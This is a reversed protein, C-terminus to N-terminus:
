TRGLSTGSCSTVTSPLYCLVLFVAQKYTNRDDSMLLYCSCLRSYLDAARRNCLSLSYCSYSSLDHRRCECAYYALYDSSGPLSNVSGPRCDGSVASMGLDYYSHCIMYCKVVVGIGIELGLFNGDDDFDQCSGDFGPNADLVSCFGVDLGSGLDFGSDFEADSGLNSQWFKWLGFVGDSVVSWLGLLYILCRKLRWCRYVLCWSSDM